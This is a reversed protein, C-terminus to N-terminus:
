DAERVKVGATGAKTGKSEKPIGQYALVPPCGRASWARLQPQGAVASVALGRSRGSPGRGGNEPHDRPAQDSENM